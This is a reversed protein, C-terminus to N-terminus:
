WMQICLTAFGFLVFTEFNEFLLMLELLYCMILIKNSDLFHSQQFAFFLVQPLPNKSYSLTSKIASNGSTFPKEYVFIFFILCHNKNQCCSTLSNFVIFLWCTTPSLLISFVFCNTEFNSSSFLWCTTAWIKFSSKWRKM